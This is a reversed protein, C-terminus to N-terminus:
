GRHLFNGLGSEARPVSDLGDSSFRKFLGARAPAPRCGSILSGKPRNGLAQPTGRPVVALGGPPLDHWSGDMWVSIVGELAYFQEDASHHLHM